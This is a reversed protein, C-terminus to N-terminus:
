SLAKSPASFGYGQLVTQTRPDLALGPTAVRPPSENNESPTIQDHYCGAVGGSDPIYPTDEMPVLSGWVSNPIGSPESLVCLSDPPSMLLKIQLQGPLDKNVGRALGKIGNQQCEGEIAELRILSLVNFAKKVRLM